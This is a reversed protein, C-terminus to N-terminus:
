MVVEDQGSLVLGPRAGSEEEEELVIMQVRSGGSVTIVLVQGIPRVFVNFAVHRNPHISSTISSPFQTSDIPPPPSPRDRTTLDLSCSQISHSISCKPLLPSPSSLLLPSLSPSHTNTFGHTHLSHVPSSHFFIILWEADVVVLWGDMWGDMIIIIICVCGRRAVEGGGGGVGEM